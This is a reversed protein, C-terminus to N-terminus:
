LGGAERFDIEYFSQTKNRRQALIQIDKDRPVACNMLYASIRRQHNNEFVLRRNPGGPPLAASLRINIEGLGERMLELAPFNITLLRPQLRSGDISLSLDRLVRAGYTQQEDPSIVGDSDTDIGALVRPFVAVGPVLRMAITVHDKDLAIVAAQLYEDLNHACAPRGFALALVLTVALGRTM